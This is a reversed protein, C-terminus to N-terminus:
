RRTKAPRGGGSLRDRVITLLNALTIIPLTPNAGTIPFAIAQVPRGRRDRLSSWTDFNPAMTLQTDLVVLDFDIATVAHRAEEVSAVSAVDAISALAAAVAEYSKHDNGIHLIKARVPLARPPNSQTTPAM